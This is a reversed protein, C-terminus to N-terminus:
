YGRYGFTKSISNVRAPAKLDLTEPNVVETDDLGPLFGAVIPQMMCCYHPHDVQIANEVQGDNMSRTGMITRKDFPIGIEQLVAVKPGGERIRIKSIKL